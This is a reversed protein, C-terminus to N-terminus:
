YYVFVAFYELFPLGCCVCCLLCLVVFGFVHGNQVSFVQLHWNTARGIIIFPWSSLKNPWKSFLVSLEDWGLDGDSARSLSLLLLTLRALVASPNM